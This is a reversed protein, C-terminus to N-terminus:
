WVVAWSVNGKYHSYARFALYFLPINPISYSVVILVRGSLVGTGRLVQEGERCSSKGGV